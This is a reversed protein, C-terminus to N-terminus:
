IWNTLTISIETGQKGSNINLVFSNAIYIDNLLSIRNNSLQFGLGSYKQNIEFGNGNDKVKLILNHDKKVFSVEIKGEIEMESIGHKVANEVFPQLLMTPIEINDLNLNEDIDISYTFGFRFQEMQLYDELLMKEDYLSILEKQNLVNRTLRAFKGLYRNAEDIKNTNMLNQISALANFMFHPNLQSRISNLEIKSIEKQRQSLALKRHNKRKLYAISTGLILGFIVCVVMGIIALEKSSLLKEDTNKVSFNYQLMKSKFLTSRFPTSLTPIIQLEYDGSANFYKSDIVIYPFNPNFHSYEWNSSKYIIESTSKDILYATYIFDLETNKIGFLMSKTNKNITFTLSDKQEINGVYSKEGQMTNFAVLKFKAPSIPKNYIIITGIKTRDGIKYYTITLKKNEINYLGLDFQHSKSFTIKTPSADSIVQHGDIQITYRYFNASDREVSSYLNITKAGELYVLNSYRQNPITSNYEIRKTGEDVSFMVDFGFNEVSASYYQSINNRVLSPQREQAFVNLSHLIFIIIISAKKMRNALKM